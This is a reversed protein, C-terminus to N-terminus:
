SDSTRNGTTPWMRLRIARTLRQQLPACAGCVPFLGSVNMLCEISDVSWLKELVSDRARTESFLNQAAIADFEGANYQRVPKSAALGQDVTMSKPDRVPQIKSIVNENNFRKISLQLQWGLLGAVILLLVNAAILNKSM